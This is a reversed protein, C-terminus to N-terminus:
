VLNEVKLAQGLIHQDQTAAINGALKSADHVTKPNIHRLIVAARLNQAAKVVFGTAKDRLLHDLVTHLQM